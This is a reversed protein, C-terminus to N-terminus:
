LAGSQLAAAVVGAAVASLCFLAVVIPSTRFRPIKISAFDLEPAPLPLPLRDPRDSDRRARRAEAMLQAKRKEAHVGPLPPAGDGVSVRAFIEEVLRGPPTGEPELIM